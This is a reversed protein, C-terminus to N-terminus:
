LIEDKHDPDIEKIRKIKEVEESHELLKEISGENEIDINTGYINEINEIKVRRNLNAEVVQFMQQSALQLLKNKKRNKSIINAFLFSLLAIIFFLSRILLEFIAIDEEILYDRLEQTAEITSWINFYPVKPFIFLLLIAAIGLLYLLIQAIWLISSNLFRKTAPEKIAEAIPEMNKIQERIHTKQDSFDELLDKLLSAHEM